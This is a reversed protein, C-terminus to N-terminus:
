RNVHIWNIGFVKEFEVAEAETAFEPFLPFRRDIIADGDLGLTIVLQSGFRGDPLQMPDCHLLFEIGKYRYKFAHDTAMEAAL